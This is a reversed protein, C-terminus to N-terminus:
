IRGQFQKLFEDDAMELPNVITAAKKATVTKTPAAAAAKDGNQVQAKPTATRTALVQPQPTPMETQPQSQQVKFGNTQQLYDGAIKYAQLFPTNAPIEGLLKRRDVESVIQDYIGLERQSQIISLIQPNEWLAKKSEQDWTQNITIITENGGPQSAVEELTTHFVMETDSVAHNNPSYNSPEETNIDLPDIGSDRVIKKIADPNKQNVDILLSLKGEDLLDNKELMRLVKLHPQLDQIKRGYGAGMQMLRIAEEPTRLEITRGNAKFPAMVKKYFEEYNYAVPKEEGTTKKVDQGDKSDTKTEGNKDSASSQDKQEAEKSDTEPDKTDETESGDASSSSDDDTTVDDGTDSEDATQSQEDTQEEQAASDEVETESGSSAKAEEETETVVETTEEASPTNINLFDEDSMGLYDNSTEATVPKDTM